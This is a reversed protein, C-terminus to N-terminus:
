PRSVRNCEEMGREPLARTDPDLAFSAAPWLSHAHVEYRLTQENPDAHFQLIKYPPHPQTSIAKTKHQLIGVRRGLNQAQTDQMAHLCNHVVLM